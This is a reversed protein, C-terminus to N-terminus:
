LEVEQMFRYDDSTRDEIERAEGGPPRLRLRLDQRVVLRYPVLTDPDTVLTAEFRAAADEVVWDEPAVAAQLRDLLGQKTAPSSVYRLRVCHPEQGEVCPVHGELGMEVDLDTAAGPLLPLSGQIRERQPKDEELQRGRWAGVIVAWDETAMRVLSTRAQERDGEEDGQLLDIAKELGEARLFAGQPNVVYVLAEGIQLNLRLNPEDGEAQSDRTFVWIEDGRRETVIQQGVLAHTPPRGTRSGKHSLVVRARYGDPWAFRLAAQSRADPRDGPPPQRSAACGAILLLALAASRPLTRVM